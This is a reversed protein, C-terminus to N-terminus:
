KSGAMIWPERVKVPSCCTGVGAPDTIMYQKSATITGTGTHNPNAWFGRWEGVVGSGTYIQRAQFGAIHNYTASGSVTTIADFAGYGSDIQDTNFISEDRVAHPGVGTVARGILVGSDDSSPANSGLFIGAAGFKQRSSTAGTRSGDALLYSTETALAMTGLGLTTRVASADADDVLSRGFSTFTALAATGSGTFYPVRDAASTLGAIATLNANLGQVAAPEYKGTANNWAWVKGTDTTGSAPAAWEPYDYHIRSPVFSGVPM